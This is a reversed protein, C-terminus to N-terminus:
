IKNPYHYYDDGYGLREADKVQNLIIGSIQAGTEQLRKLANNITSTSTDNAHVTLLTINALSSLIMADALGLIPPGDMIVVDYHQGATKLLAEMKTNALLESPDTPPTGAVIIDLNPVNSAQSLQDLPYEGSLYGVLNQQNRTGILKHLSPNRLDADILLVRNGTHAFASALNMAVTTKGENARASTIFLVPKENQERLKFRITTRLSRFSEALPSKPSNLVLQSIKKPDNENVAPVLGLVPLRTQRELENIDKVSDDMFERLFAAAIGLFLGLLGAFILNTSLNPKFKQLPALAKDIISLNNNGAEGAVNIEKLRQLLGQYLAQNTEVERELTNYAVRSDQFILAKKEEESLADRLLEARKRASALEGQRAPDTEVIIAESEAKVLEESLRMIKHSSTTSEKDDLNIITNEKAYANLAKESEQLKGKAEQIQQQLFTQAGGTLELRRTRNSNVFEEVIANAVEAAKEPSSADFHIAVLRSNKIPEIDLNEMIANALATKSNAATDPSFLNKLKGFLSRRIVDETLQLKDIVKEIVSYSRILEFQTQYFDRTDRIDGNNLFDVNVVKTAEREVQLTATARYVPSSLFTLLLALLLTAGVIGLVLKKQRVLTKWFERLDLTDQAKAYAPVYSTGNVQSATNQNM